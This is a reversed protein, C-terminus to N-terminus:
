YLVTFGGDGRAIAAGFSWVPVGDTRGSRETPQGAADFLRWALAGGRAWATGETWVLLTDGRGGIALRPHKRAEGSGPAAIPAAIAAANVDVAGVYVQGAPQVSSGPESWIM